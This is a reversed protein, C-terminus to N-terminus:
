WNIKLSLMNPSFIDDKWNGKIKSHSAHYRNRMIDATGKEVEGLEELKKYILYDKYGAKGFYRFKGKDDRMMLKNVGNDAWFLDSPIYGAEHARVKAERLYWNPKNVYGGILHEKNEVTKMQKVAKDYTLPKISLVNGNISIVRYGDPFQLVRYPM